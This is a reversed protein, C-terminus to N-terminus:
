ESLINPTGASVVWGLILVWSFFFDQVQATMGEVSERLEADARRGVWPRTTWLEMPKEASSSGIPEFSYFLFCGMFSMFVLPQDMESSPHKKQGLLDSLNKSFFADSRFFRFCFSFNKRFGVFQVFRNRIRTPQFTVKEFLCCVVWRAGM